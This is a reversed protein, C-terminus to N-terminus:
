YKAKLEDLEKLKQLVKNNLEILDKEKKQCEKEYLVKAENRFFIKLFWIFVKCLLIRKLFIKM